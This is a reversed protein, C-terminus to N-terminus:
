VWVLYTDVHGGGLKQVFWTTAITTPQDGVHSGDGRGGGWNNFESQNCGKSKGKKYGNTIITAWLKSTSNAVNLSILFFVPDSFWIDVGTEYIRPRRGKWTAWWSV